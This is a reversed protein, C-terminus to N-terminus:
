GGKKRRRMPKMGKLAGNTETQQPHRDRRAVAAVDKTTGTQLLRTTSTVVATRYTSSRHSERAAVYRDICEHVSRAVVKGLGPLPGLLLLFAVCYFDGNAIQELEASSQANAILEDKIRGARATQQDIALKEHM